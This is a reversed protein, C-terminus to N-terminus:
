MKAGGGANELFADATIDGNPDATSNATITCNTKSWGANDFEESRTFQNESITAFSVVENTSEIEAVVSTSFNTTSAVPIYNQTANINESLTTDVSQLTSRTAQSDVSAM